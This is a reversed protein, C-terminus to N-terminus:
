KVTPPKKTIISDLEEFSVSSKPNNLPTEKGNNPNGPVNQLGANNSANLTQLSLEAGATRASASAGSVNTGLIQQKESIDAAADVARLSTVFQYRAEPNYQSITEAVHFGTPNINKTTNDITSSLDVGFSNDLKFSNTFLVSNDKVKKNDEVQSNDTKNSNDTLKKHSNVTDGNIDSKVTNGASDKWYTEVGKETIKSETKGIINGQNDTIVSATKGDQSTTEVKQSLSQVYSEVSNDKIYGAKFANNAMTQINESGVMSKILDIKAINNLRNMDANVSTLANNQSAVTKGSQAGAASVNNTNNQASAGKSTDFTTSYNASDQIQQSSLNTSATSKGVNTNSELKGVGSGVSSANNPSGYTNATSQDKGADYASNISSVRKVEDTNNGFIGYQSVNGSINKTDSFVKSDKMDKLDFSESVETTALMNSSSDKGLGVGVRNPDQINTSETDRKSVDRKQENDTIKDLTSVIGNNKSNLASYKSNGTSANELTGATTSNEIKSFLNGDLTTAKFDGNVKSGSIGGQNEYKGSANSVLGGGTTQKQEGIASSMDKMGSFMDTSVTKGISDISNSGAGLLKGAAVSAAGQYQLQSQMQKLSGIDGTYLPNQKELERNVNDLAAYESRQADLTQTSSYQGVAGAVAGTIGSISHFSAFLIFGALAPIMWYMDAAISAENAITNYIENANAMTLIGYAGPTDNTSNILRNIAETQAERTTFYNLVSYSPIWLELWLLGMVYNQIIKIGGAFLQVILIIPFLVYMVAQLVSHMSPLIMAASKAKVKGALQMQSIALGAGFGAQASSNTASSIGVGYNQWSNEIASMLGNNMIYTTIKAQTGTLDSQNMMSVVSSAAKDFNSTDKTALKKAATYLKSDNKILFFLDYTQSFLANCTTSTGDYKQIGISGITKITENASNTPSLYTMFDSQNTIENKIRPDISLAIDYICSQMYNDLLKNLLKGNDNISFMDVADLKTLIKYTGMHGAKLFSTEMIQENDTISTFITEILLASNYGINSFCSTLIAFIYPVNDIKAYNDINPNISDYSKVNVVHVTATTGFVVMMTAIATVFYKPIATIDFFKIFLSFVMGTYIAFRLTEMYGNDQNIMALYNFVSKLTNIDEYSYIWWDTGSDVAFLSTSFLFFLFFKFM